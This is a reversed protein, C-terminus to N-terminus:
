LYFSEMVKVAELSEILSKRIEDVKDPDMNESVRIDLIGCEESYVVYVSKLTGERIEQITPCEKQFKLHYEGAEEDSDLVICKMEESGNFIKLLSELMISSKKM